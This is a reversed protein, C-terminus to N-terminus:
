PHFTLPTSPVPIAYATSTNLSSEVAIGSAWRVGSAQISLGVRSLLSAANTIKAPLCDFHSLWFRVPFQLKEGLEGIMTLLNHGYGQRRYAPRVFLEEVDIWCDREVAFAWGIREDQSFDYVEMAHLVSGSFTKVGWNLYQIGPSYELIPPKEGHGSMSWGETMFRDFYEFSMTGFGSNGWDNGWSNAFHLREEDPDVGLICVAHGGIYPEATPPITIEGDPADLWQKTIDFSALVPLRHQIAKRCDDASRVRQYLKIRRPKALSDINQPECPPWDSKSTIYPWEALSANGWGRTIRAATIPWMGVDPDASYTGELQRGRVHLYLTSMQEFQEVKM